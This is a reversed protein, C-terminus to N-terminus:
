WSVGWLTSDCGVRYLRKVQRVSLGLLEGATEQTILRAAVQRLVSARERELASMTLFEGGM